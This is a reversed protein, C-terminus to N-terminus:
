SGAAFTVTNINMPVMTSPLSITSGTASTNDYYTVDGVAQITAGLSVSNSGSASGLASDNLQITFLYSSGASIVPATSTPFDWEILCASASCSTSSPSAGFSSASTVDVNNVDKLVFTSTATSSVANGGFTIRLTRLMASGATNAAFTITAFNDVSSKVRGSLTGLATASPTLATRLVTMKNGTAGGTVTTALNSSAGLATVGGVQFTSTTNDSSGQSSYSAVDGKLTLTLSNSQPVVVPTGFHFTYTYGGWGFTAKNSTLTLNGGQSATTISVTHYGGSATLVLTGAAAGTGVAAAVGSPYTPVALATAVTTTASGSNVSATTINFGDVTMTYTGTATSTADTISITATLGTPATLAVASGGTGLLTSGNYIGVNQFNAKTSTTNQVVTLDTIKVNEYNTTEAFRFAALGNGTSGM